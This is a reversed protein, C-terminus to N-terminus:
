DQRCTTWVEFRRRTVRGRKTCPRPVRKLESPSVAKARDSATKQADVLRGSRPSPNASASTLAVRFRLSTLSSQIRQSATRDGRETAIRMRQQLAARLFVLDSPDHDGLSAFWSDAEDLRGLAMMAEARLYREISSSEFPNILGNSFWRFVLSRETWRLVENPRGAQRAQLARVTAARGANGDFGRLTDPQPPTMRELLDATAWAAASDGLLAHVAGLTALAEARRGDPLSAQFQKAAVLTVLSDRVSRLRAPGIPGEPVTAALVTLWGIQTGADPLAKLAALQREADAVDGRALALYLLQTRGLAHAHPSRRPATFLSFVRKAGELDRSFVTMRWGIGFLLSEDADRLREILRDLVIGDHLSGARLAQVELGRISDPGLALMRDTLKRVDDTRRDRAAIQALHWLAGYHRPAVDLVREFEVRAEDISRGQPSSYHFLVEGLDHRAQVSGPNTTLARRYTGEAQHWEGRRWAIFGELLMRTQGDLHSRRQFAQRIRADIRDGPQDAWLTAVALKYYAPALSSDLSVAREFAAVALDFRGSQLHVEGLRMAGTAGAVGDPEPQALMNRLALPAALLAALLAARTLWTRYSAADTAVRVAAPRADPLAPSPVSAVSASNENPTGNATRLTATLDRLSRDPAVGLDQRLREEHIAAYRLAGARNGAADLAKMLGLALRDNLPDTGVLREWAEVATAYDRRAMAVTASQELSRSYARALQLRRQEVWDEFEPANEIHVGDLFPGRYLQNARQWEGAAVASEFQVSDCDISGDSVMVEDGRTVVVYDGLSQRLDYIAASLRHRAEGTEVEPWFLALLKDRSVPVGPRSALVALLALRRKQSARGAPGNGTELTLGGLLRLILM